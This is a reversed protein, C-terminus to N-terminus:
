FFFDSGSIDAVYVGALKITDAGITIKAFGDDHNGSIEGGTIVLNFPSPINQSGRQIVIGSGGNEKAINDV